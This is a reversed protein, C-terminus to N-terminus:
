GILHAMKRDCSAHHMKIIACRTHTVTRPPLFHLVYNKILLIHMAYRRLLQHRRQAADSIRLPSDAEVPEYTGHVTDLRGTKPCIPCVTLGQKDGRRKSLSRWRTGNKEDSGAAREDRSNRKVADGFVFMRLVQARRHGVYSQRVASSSTPFYRIIRFYVRNMACKTQL